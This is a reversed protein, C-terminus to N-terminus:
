GALDLALPEGAEIDGGLLYCEYMEATTYIKRVKFCGIQRPEWPLILTRYGRIEALRQICEESGMCVGYLFGSRYRHELCMSCISLSDKSILLSAAERRLYHMGGVRHKFWLLEFLKSVFQNVVVCYDSRYREYVLLYSGYDYVRRDVRRAGADLWFDRLGL